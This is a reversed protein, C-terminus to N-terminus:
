SSKVGTWVFPFMITLGYEKCIKFFTALTIGTGRSRLCASYQRDCEAPKYSPAFQSIAHFIGRGQEGLGDAIAFALNRWTEYGGTIDIGQRCIQETLQKTRKVAEEDDPHYLPEIRPKPPTYLGSYPKAQMNIHPAEDWTCGRLRCVDRCCGDIVIGLKQFVGKLADFHQEHKEPSSIPILCFLGNRRGSASLSCYAINQMRALRQKLEEFDTIEPNEKADIDICILGSHRILGDKKRYSFLGSPTIGPLSRKIRDREAKETFTRLREIDARHTDSHLWEWLNIEQPNRPSTCNEFLSVPVDLVNKM